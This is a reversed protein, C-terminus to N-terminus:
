RQGKARDRANTASFEGRVVPASASAVSPVLERVVGDRLVWTGPSTPVRSKVPNQAQRRAHSCSARVGWIILGALACSAVAVGACILALPVSARYLKGRPIVITPPALATDAPAGSDASDATTPPSSPQSAAPASTPRLSSTIQQWSSIRNSGASFLVSAFDSGNTGCSINVTPEATPCVLAELSAADVDLASELGVTRSLLPYATQDFLTPAASWLLRRRAGIGFPLQLAALAARAKALLEASLRVASPAPADAPLISFAVLAHNVLSSTNWGGATATAVPPLYMDVQFRSANAGLLAALEAVLRMAVETANSPLGGGSGLLQLMHQVAIAASAVAPTSNTANPLPAPPGPSAIAGLPCTSLQFGNVAAALDRATQMVIDPNVAGKGLAAVAADAFAFPIDTILGIIRRGCEQASSCCIAGGNIPMPGRQDCDAWCIPGAGTYGPACQAYCLGGDEDETDACSRDDGSGRSYVTSGGPPWLSAKRCSSAGDARYGPNCAAYCLAGGPEPYYSSANCGRRPQGVGRFTWNKWCAISQDICSCRCDYGATVLEACSRGARLQAACTSLPWGRPVEMCSDGFLSDFVSSTAVSLDASPTAAAREAAFAGAKATVDALAAALASAADGDILAGDHTSSVSQAPAAVALARSDPALPLLSEPEGEARAAASGLAAGSARPPEFIPDGCIPLAFAMAGDVAVKANAVAGAYNGSLGSVVVRAWLAPFKVAMEFMQKECAAATACCMAGYDVAYFPYTSSSCSKWCVPGVGVFGAPCNKYCLAAEETEDPQCSRHVGAGRSYVDSISKWCLTVGDSTYGEQCKRYCLAGGPEPYESEPDCRSRGLGRGRGFSPKWCARQLEYPNKLRELFTTVLQKAQPNTDITGQVREIWTQLGQTGTSLAGASTALLVAFVGRM